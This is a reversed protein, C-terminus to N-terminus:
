PFGAAINMDVLVRAYLMRSKTLTSTDVKLVTGLYGVTDKLMCESWYMVNLKPLKIWISVSEISAKEYSINPFWPKDIFPKKDFLIGNMSCAQEQHDKTKFRVLFMGRNVMGIKDIGQDKWIRRVFGEIVHLPPNASTVYCVVANSSFKIEEVDEKRIKTIRRSSPPAPTDSMGTVTPISMSPKESVTPVRLYPKESVTSSKGVGMLDEPTSTPKPGKLISVWNLGVPMQAPSGVPQVSKRSTRSQNLAQNLSQNSPLHEIRECSSSSGRSSCSM